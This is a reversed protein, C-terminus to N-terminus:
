TAIPRDGSCVLRLWSIKGDTVDHYAQQENVFTGETPDSWRIRFGVRRRDAIAASELAEIAEIVVPNPYWEEFIAVVADDGTAEFLRKPMLAGFDIEPAFLPRVATLDSAVLARVLQEGLPTPIVAM